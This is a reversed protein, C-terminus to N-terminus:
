RRRSCAPDASDMASRRDARDHSGAPGCHGRRGRVPNAEELIEIRMGRGRDKGCSLATQATRQGRLRAWLDGANRQLIRDSNGEGKRPPVLPPPTQAVRRSLSDGVGGGGVGGWLPSSLAVDRVLVYRIPVHKGPHHWIATGSVFEILRGGGGYWGDVWVRRWATKPNALREALSPLRQGVIRPRGRTGPRRRPAPTFLRADLRLRTIMCLRHRVANLLDIAAFSQDAVAVIRRDPLWRAVQLLAQRAWDTLAKHRQRHERSFRESPALVTLFPLAWVRGAWSIPVLLM